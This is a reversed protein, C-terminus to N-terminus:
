DSVVSKYILAASGDPLDFEGTKIFPMEGKKLRLLIEENRWTTFRPGQFGTKGILYDQEGMLSVVEDITKEKPIYANTRLNIRDHGYLLAYYRFNNYNFFRYDAIVMAAVNSPFRKTEEAILGLIEEHKWKKQPHCVVFRDDTLLVFRGYRVHRIKELSEPLPIEFSLIFYSFLPFVFLLPLFAMRKRSGGFIAGAMKGLLLAFGLLAPIMFRFDKNVGLTFVALPILFWTGIFVLMFRNREFAARLCNRRMIALIALLVPVLFFYYVSLNSNINMIWYTSIAQWSFVDGLGYAAAGEGYGAQAVFGLIHKINRAYWISAILVCILAVGLIRKWLKWSAFGEERFRPWLVALVPGIVYVPFTIKMLMGFGAVVGILVTHGTKTLRESKLLLYLFVTVMAALGGEVLFVRYISFMYPMTAATFVAALGGTESKFLTKAILFLFIFLVAMAIMNVAMAPVVGRGFVLYVPMPLATILPAKFRMAGSFSHLFAVPGNTDLQKFLIESEELYWSEDWKPPGENQCIWFFSALVFFLSIAILTIESPKLSKFYKMNHVPVDKWLKGTNLIEVRIPRKLFSRKAM